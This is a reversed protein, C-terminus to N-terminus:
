YAFMNVSVVMMAVMLAAAFTAAYINKTRRFVATNLMSAFTFTPVLATLKISLSLTNPHGNPFTGYGFFFPPYQTTKLGIYYILMLIALGCAGIIWALAYQKAAGRKGSFNAGAGIFSITVINMVAFVLLYSILYGWIFQIRELTIPMIGFQWFRFDLKFMGYCLNVVLYICAIVSIAFVAARLVLRWSIAPKESGTALRYSALNGGHKRGHVFHWVLFAVILITANVLNIWALYNGWTMPFLKSAKVTSLLLGVPYYTLMPVIIALLIGFARPGKGVHVPESSATSAGIMLPSFVKSDLLVRAISIAFALLAFFALVTFTEKMPWVQDNAALSTGSPMAQSFFSIVAGISDKNILTGIHTTDPTYIIRATEDEFSGYVKGAVVPQDTNFFAMLQENKLFDRTYRLNTAYIIFEDSSANIYGVNFKFDAPDSRLMLAVFSGSGWPM